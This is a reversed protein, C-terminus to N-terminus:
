LGFIGKKIREVVEEGLHHKVIALAFDLTYGMSKGTVNMPSNVVNEDKQYSPGNDLQEFGPFCIYPNNKDIAKLRYLIPPAACIAHICKQHDSFYKITEKVLSSEELNKVGLKGGPLVLFTFDDLTADKLLINSKILVGHSSKVFLDDNISALVVDIEGTRSLVDFTQIAETEEFGEALLILAKM